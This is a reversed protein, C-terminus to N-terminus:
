LAFSKETGLCYSKGRRCFCQCFVSIKFMMESITIASNLKLLSEVLLCFRVTVAM